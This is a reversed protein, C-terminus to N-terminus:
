SVPTGEKQRKAPERKPPSSPGCLKERALNNSEIQSATVQTLTDSKSVYVTTTSECIPTVTAVLQTGCAGLMLPLILILLPNM